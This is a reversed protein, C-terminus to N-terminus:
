ISVKDLCSNRLEGGFARFQQQCFLKDLSMESLDYLVLDESKRVQEM